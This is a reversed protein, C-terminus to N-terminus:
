PEDCPDPATWVPAFAVEFTVVAGDLTVGQDGLVIELAAEHEDDRPIVYHISRGALMTTLTSPDDIDAVDGTAANATWRVTLDPAEASVTRGDTLVMLVGGPRGAFAAIRANTLFISLQSVHVPCRGRGAVRDAWGPGDLWGTEVPERLFAEALAGASLSAVRPRTAGALELLRLARVLAALTDSLADQVGRTNVMDILDDATAALYQGAVVFTWGLRGRQKADIARVLASTADSPGDPLMVGFPAWGGRALAARDPAPALLRDDAGGVTLVAGDFGGLLSVTRGDDLTLWAGYPENREGVDLRADIVHQGAISAPGNTARPTAMVAVQIDGGSRASEISLWNGDAREFVVRGATGADDRSDFVTVDRVRHGTLFAVADHWDTTETVPM